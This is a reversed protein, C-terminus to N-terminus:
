EGDDVAPDQTPAESDLADALANRWRVRDVLALRRELVDLDGAHDLDAISAALTALTDIADFRRVARELDARAIDVEAVILDRMDNM